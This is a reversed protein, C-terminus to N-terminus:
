KVGLVAASLTPPDWVLESSVGAVECHYVVVSVVEEDRRRDCGADVFVGHSFERGEKLEFDAFIGSDNGCSDSVGVFEYDTLLEGLQDVLRQTGDTMALGCAYHYIEPTSLRSYLELAAVGAGIVVIALAGYIAVWRRMM